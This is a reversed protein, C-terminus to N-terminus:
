EGDRSLHKIHAGVAALPVFATETHHMKPDIFDVGYLAAGFGTLGVSGFWVFSRLRAQVLVDKVRAAEIAAETMLEADFVDTPITYAESAQLIVREDQEMGLLHHNMVDVAAQIEDETSLRDDALASLEVDDAIERAFKISDSVIILETM